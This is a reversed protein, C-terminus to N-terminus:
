LGNNRSSKQFQTLENETFANFIGYEKPIDPLGFFERAEHYLKLLEINTLNNVIKEVKDWEQYKGYLYSEYLEHVYCNKSVNIDPVNIKPDLYYFYPAPTGFEKQAKARAKKIKRKLKADLFWGFLIVSGGLVFAIAMFLIYLVFIMMIDFNSSNKFRQPFIGLDIIFDIFGQFYSFLVSLIFIFIFGFIYRM